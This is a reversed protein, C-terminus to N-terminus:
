SSNCPVLQIWPKSNLHVITLTKIFLLSDFLIELMNILVKSDLFPHLKRACIILVFLTMPLHHLFVGSFLLLMLIFATLFVYDSLCTGQNATMIFM